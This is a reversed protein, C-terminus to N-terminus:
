QQLDLMNVKVSQNVDLTRYAPTRFSIAVQKHVNTHQFDGYAEWVCVDNHEEYFRVSIDEKAVQFLFNAINQHKLCVL